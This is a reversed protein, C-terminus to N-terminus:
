PQNVSAEYIQSVGKFYGVLQPAAQTWVFDPHEPSIWEGGLIEGEANLELNYDFERKSEQNPFEVFPLPEWSPGLETLYRVLTKVQVIKVTGPAANAYIVDTEGVKESAFGFVPHNWVESTRRVEVVFGAKLLAIQNALIIHFSGANIDQCENGGGTNTNCRRGVTRAEAIRAAQAYTLLGKIDSSGFPVRIGGAGEVVVPRPEKFNLAAAAWGHCLGFWSPHAPSTRSRERAVLPYNYRGLFVDYKEAPSLQSLATEDMAAVTASDNLAYTFADPADPHHWRDALGGQDNPWYTDTWPKQELAAILPLADFHVEYTDKLRAPDNAQNWAQSSQSYDFNPTSPIANCGLFFVSSVAWYTTTRM